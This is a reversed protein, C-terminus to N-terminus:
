FDHVHVPLSPTPLVYLAYHRDSPLQLQTKPMPSVFVMVPQTVASQVNYRLRAEFSHKTKETSLSKGVICTWVLEFMREMGPPSHAVFYYDPTLGSLDENYHWEYLLIRDTSMVKVTSNFMFSSCASSARTCVFLRTKTIINDVPYITSVRDSGKNQTKIVPILRMDPPPDVATIASEIINKFVSESCKAPDVVVMQGPRFIYNGYPCLESGVSTRVIIVCPHDFSQYISRSPPSSDNLVHCRIGQLRCMISMADIVGRAIDTTLHTVRVCMIVCAYSSRNSQLCQIRNLKSIPRTEKASTNSVSELRRATFYTLLNRDLCRYFADDTTWVLIDGTRHCSHLKMSSALTDADVNSTITWAVDPDIRLSGCVRTHLKEFGSPALTLMAEDTSQYLLGSVSPLLTPHAPSSLERYESVHTRQSDGTVPICAEAYHLISNLDIILLVGNAATSIHTSGLKANANDDGGEHARDKEVSHETISLPNRRRKPNTENAIGTYKDIHKCKVDYAKRKQGGRTIPECSISYVNTGPLLAPRTVTSQLTQNPTASGLPAVLVITHKDHRIELKTDYVLNLLRMQTFIPDDRTSFLSKQIMKIWETPTTTPTLLDRSHKYLKQISSSYTPIDTNDKDVSFMLPEM